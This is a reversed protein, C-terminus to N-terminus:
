GPRCHYGSHQLPLAVTHRDDRLGVPLVIQPVETFQSGRTQKESDIGSGHVRHDVMIGGGLTQATVIGISGSALGSVTGVIGHGDIGAYELPKIRM